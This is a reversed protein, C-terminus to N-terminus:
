YGGGSNMAQSYRQSQVQSGYANGSQMSHSYSLAAMTASGEARSGNSLAVAKLGELEQIFQKGYEIVEADTEVDPAILDAITRMGNALILMAILPAEGICEKQVDAVAMRIRYKKINTPGANVGQASTWVDYDAVGEEYTVGYLLAIDRREGSSVRKMNLYYVTECIQTVDTVGVGSLTGGVQAATFVVTSHQSVCELMSALMGGLCVNMNADVAADNGDPIYVYGGKGSKAIQTCHPIDHDAGFGIVNVIGRSDTIRKCKNEIANDLSMVCGDTLFIVTRVANSYAGMTVIDAAVALPPAFETGGHADIESINQIMRTIAAVDRVRTVGFRERVETNFPIVAVAHDCGTAAADAILVNIARICAGKAQAIKRGEMSGSRDLLFVVLQTLRRGGMIPSPGACLTFLVQNGHRSMEITREYADSADKDRETFTMAQNQVEVATYIGGCKMPCEVWGCRSHEIARQICTKHQLHKGACKSTAIGNTETVESLCYVCTFQVQVQDQSQLESM